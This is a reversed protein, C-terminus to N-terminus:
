VEHFMFCTACTHLMNTGVLGLYLDSHSFKSDHMVGLVSWLTHTHPPAHSTFVMWVCSCGRSQQSGIRSGSRSWEFEDRGRGGKGWRDCMTPTSREVCRWGVVTVDRTCKIVCVRTLPCSTRYYCKEGLTGCGGRSLHTHASLYTPQYTHPCM